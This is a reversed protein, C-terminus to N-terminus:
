IRTSRAPASELQQQQQELDRRLQELWEVASFGNAELATWVIAAGLGLAVGAVGLWWGARAPPPAGPDDVSARRQAVVALLWASLSFPLALIFGLGATLALVALGVAGLATATTALRHAPPRPGVARAFVPKGTGSAGKDRATRARATKAEGPGGPQGGRWRSRAPPRLPNPGSDESPDPPQPPLWQPPAGPEDSM